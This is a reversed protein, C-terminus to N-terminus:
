PPADHGFLEVRTADDEIPFLQRRQRALCRKLQRLDERLAPDAEIVKIQSQKFAEVLRAWRNTRGSAACWDDWAVEAWVLWHDYFFNRYVFDLFWGVVDDAAQVPLAFRPEGEAAVHVHPLSEKLLPGLASPDHDLRLYRHSPSGDGVAFVRIPVEAWLAQLNAYRLRGEDLGLVLILALNDEVTLHEFGGAEAACRAIWVHAPETEARRGVGEPLRPPFALRGSRHKASGLTHLLQELGPTFM